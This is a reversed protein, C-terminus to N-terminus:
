GALYIGHGASEESYGIDDRVGLSGRPILESRM